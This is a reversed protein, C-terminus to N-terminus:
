DAATRRGFRVGANTCVLLGGAALVVLAIRLGGDIPLGDHVGFIGLLLLVVAPIANELGGENPGGTWAEGEAVTLGGGVGWLAANTAALLADPFLLYAVTGGLVAAVVGVGVPRNM